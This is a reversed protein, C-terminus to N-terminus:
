KSLKTILIGLQVGGKRNFNDENKRVSFSFVHCFLGCFIHQDHGHLLLHHLYALSSGPDLHNLGDHVDDDGGDCYADGHVALLDSSTQPPPNRLYDLLNHSDMGHDLYTLSITTQKHLEYM